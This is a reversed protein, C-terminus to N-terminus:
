REISTTLVYPVTFDDYDWRAGDALTLRYTEGALVALRGRMPSESSQALPVNATWLELLEGGQWTIRTILTGTAPATLEFTHEAGHDKLTAKVEQGVTIRTAPGLPGPPAPPAPPTPAAAPPPPATPTRVVSSSDSGCAAALVVIGLLTSLHKM